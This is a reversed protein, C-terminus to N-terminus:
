VETQKKLLSFVRQLTFEFSDFGLNCLMLTLKNKTIQALANV